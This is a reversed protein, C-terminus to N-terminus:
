KSDRFVNLASVGEVLYQHQHINQVWPDFVPKKLLNLKNPHSTLISSRNCNDYLFSSRVSTSIWRTSCQAVMVVAYMCTSKTHLYSSINPSSFICFFFWSQQWYNGKSAIHVKSRPIEFIMAMPSITDFTQSSPHWGKIDSMFAKRWCM